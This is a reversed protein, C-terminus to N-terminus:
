RITGGKKDPGLSGLGFVRQSELLSLEYADVDETLHPNDKEFKLFKVFPRLGESDEIITKADSIDVNFAVAAGGFYLTENLAMDIGALFIEFATEKDVGEKQNLEWWEEFKNRHLKLLFDDLM